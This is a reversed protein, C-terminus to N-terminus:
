WGGADRHTSFPAHPCADEWVVDSTLCGGSPRSPARGERENRRTLCFVSPPVRGTKTNTHIEISLFVPFQAFYIQRRAPFRTYPPVDQLDSMTRSRIPLALGSRTPQCKWSRVPCRNAVSCLLRRGSHSLKLYPRYRASSACRAGRERYKRIPM